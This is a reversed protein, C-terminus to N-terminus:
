ALPPSRAPKSWFLRRTASGISYARAGGSCCRCWTSRFSTSCGPACVDRKGAAAKAQRLASEIGDAVFIFETDGKPLRQPRTHSLIFHPVKYPNEAYGDHADGAEFARRGMVLAGIRSMLEDIVQQTDASPAFYWNHLGADEGNPGGIFGDLSVAMDLFIVSM